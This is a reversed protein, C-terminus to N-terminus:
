SRGSARGKMRKAIRAPVVVEGKHLRYVGTKKVRGGKRFGEIEGSDLRQEEPPAPPGELEGGGPGKRGALRKKIGSALNYGAGFEPNAASIASIIKQKRSPGAVAKALDTNAM